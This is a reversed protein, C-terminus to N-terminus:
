VGFAEAALELSGLAAVVSVVGFRRQWLDAEVCKSVSPCGDGEFGAHRHLDDLVSEVVGTLSNGGVDIGM